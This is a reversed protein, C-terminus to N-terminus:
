KKTFRITAIPALASNGNALISATLPTLLQVNKQPMSEPNYYGFVDGDETGADYPYLNVKTDSIWKKNEFLNFGSLGTFWDPTPALM